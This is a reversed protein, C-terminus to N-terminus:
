REEERRSVNGAYGSAKSYAQAEMDMVWPSRTEGVGGKFISKRGGRQKQREAEKGFASKQGRQHVNCQGGPFGYWKWSASSPSALNKVAIKSNDKRCSDIESGVGWYHV